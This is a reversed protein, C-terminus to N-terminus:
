MQYWLVLEVNHSRSILMKKRSCTLLLVFLDVLSAHMWLQVFWTIKEKITVIPPPIQVSSTDIPFVLLHWNLKLARQSLDLTKKFLMVLPVWRGYSKYRGCVTWRCMYLGLVQTSTQYMENKLMKFIPNNSFTTGFFHSIYFLQWRMVLCASLVKFEWPLIIILYELFLDPFWCLSFLSQIKISVLGEIKM